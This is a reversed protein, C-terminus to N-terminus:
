YFFDSLATDLNKIRDSNNMDQKLEKNFKAVDKQITNLEKDKFAAFHLKLMAAIDIANLRKFVLERNKGKAPTLVEGLLIFLQILRAENHANFLEINGTRFVNAMQGFLQDTVSSVSEMRENLITEMQGSLKEALLKIDQEPLPRFANNQDQVSSNIAMLIEEKMADQQQRSVAVENEKQEDQKAVTWELATNLKFMRSKINQHIRESIEYYMFRLFDRKDPYLNYHFDLYKTIEANPYRNLKNFIENKYPLALPEKPFNLHYGTEYDGIKYAFYPTFDGPIDSYALRYGMDTLMNRFAIKSALWKKLNM